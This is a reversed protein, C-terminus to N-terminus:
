VMQPNLCNLSSDKASVTFNLRFDSIWSPPRWVPLPRFHFYQPWCVYAIFLIVVNSRSAIKPTWSNLSVLTFVSSPIRFDSRYLCSYLSIATEPKSGGDQFKSVRSIERQRRQSQQFVRVNGGFYNTIRHFKTETPVEPKLTRWRLNEGERTM